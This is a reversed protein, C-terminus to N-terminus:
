ALRRALVALNVSFRYNTRRLAVDTRRLLSKPLFQWPLTHIGEARVIELGSERLWTLLDQARVWNEYGAYHKRMRLMQILDLSWKWAQNPVSISLLGGPAVRAALERVAQGPTPTHEIAESCVIVDFTEDGLAPKLNMLDAILVRAKPLQTQLSQVLSPGIDIATLTGPQKEWLKRAFFGLGTGADLCRRGQIQGALFEDILVELRRSTDYDSIVASWRERIHEYAYDKDTLERQVTATV